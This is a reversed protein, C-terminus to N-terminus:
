AVESRVARVILIMTGEVTPPPASMSASQQGILDTTRLIDRHNNLVARPRAIRNSRFGRRSCRRIASVSSILVGSNTM